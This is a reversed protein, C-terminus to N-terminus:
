ELRWVAWGGPEYRTSGAPFVQDAEQGAFDRLEIRVRWTKGPFRQRSIWFEHGAYPVFSARTVEKAERGGPAWAIRNAGWHAPLGWATAPERDTWARGAVVREGWQLSAHLNHVRGDGDALFLDVYTAHKAQPVLALWVRGGVEKSLIAGGQPWVFMAAGDWEGPALQGDAQMEMESAAVARVRVEEAGAVAVAALCGAAWIWRFKM